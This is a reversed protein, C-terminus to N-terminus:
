QFNAIGEMQWNTDPQAPLYVFSQYTTGNMYWVTNDGTVTNRWFIDLDGDGDVDGVGGIRWQTNAVRPLYLFSVYTLRDMIWITNDGTAFNRWVLDANGDRNMDGAAQIHWNTDTVTPLFVFGTYTSGQMIWVTDQGTTYNRWVIDPYGDGNFDAAAQIHWNLDTVAPLYVFHDYSAGKMFWITNDGTRYNRWVIDVNGDRDFDGTAEPNWSADTIKPLDVTSSVSTGQMLWISDQGTSYNRWLIDATGKPPPPPATVTVTASASNASGCSNSVRVWYSTTATPSVILSSSTAGAIPSATNGSSGIYWQYSLPATGTATVNLTASAGSTITTSQPQSTISPPTCPPPTGPACINGPYVAQVAHQDWAQLAANLGTSVFSKMIATNSCELSPDTSCAADSSRNQDSHRFGLTHGVEHAVASNFDGNNFLLTCNALGKNMEVDAEQTTVFTEGNVTNSGSATTIGGIGLTGSYGNSSCTFPSVGWTSLDREFLITNAGDAGHLGQTHTGNDIGAYVYNVNSGCDNNWSAFAANIATDGGGPAGPEGSVGRLFNVANPFVSWRSGTSGSILMTYSNATYPAINPVPVAEAHLRLPNSGTFYDGVGTGGGAESRVFRLFRDARRHPERHIRLDPDWGVIEDEDRVLLRQGVSDSEFTFKGLVLETVAWRDQGIYSLFLLMRRGPEFRPVGPIVTARGDYEGGPEAVTLTSGLRSGKIVEEVSMPTVTEIGGDDNLQTYSTLASAIVIAHARRVMDHDSPVVFM